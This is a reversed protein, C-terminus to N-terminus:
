RRKGSKKKAEIKTAQELNRLEEYFTELIGAEKLESDKLARRMAQDFTDGIHIAYADEGVMFYVDRQAVKLVKGRLVEESTNPDLLRFHQFGKETGIRTERFGELPNFLHAEKSTPTTSVLKVFSRPDPGPPITMKPSLIEGAFINRDELYAYERGGSEQALKRQALPGTPGVAWAAMGWGIPARTMGALVDVIALRSDPALLHDSYRHANNVIMAEVVMQYGLRPNPDKGEKDKQDLRDLTLSKVRHMLPTQQFSQLAHVLQTLTGKGRVSFTLTIHGSKKTQAGSPAAKAEWPDPAKFEDITLASQRLLLNSLYQSYETAARDPNAPLSRPQWKDLLQRKGFQVRTFDREKDDVDDELAAIQRNYDRLPALVWSNLLYYCGGVGVIAGVIAVVFARERQTM